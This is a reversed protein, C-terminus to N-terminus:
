EVIGLPFSLMGMARDIGFTIPITFFDFYDM